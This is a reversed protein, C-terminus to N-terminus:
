LERLEGVLLQDGVDDAGAGRAPLLARDRRDLDESVGVLALDDAEDLVLEAALPALDDLLDGRARDRARDARGGAELPGADLLEAGPEEHDRPAPAGVVQALLAHVLDRQDGVETVLVGALALDLRAVRDGGHVVGADPGLCEVLEAVVGVPEGHAQALYVVARVLLDGLMDVTLVPVSKVVWHRLVIDALYEASESLPEVLKQNLSIM